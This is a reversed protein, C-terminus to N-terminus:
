ARRAKGLFLVRLESLEALYTFDPDVTMLGGGLGIAQSAILTDPTSAAIGRAAADSALRAARRHDDEDALVVPFSDRIGRLVRREQRRDSIGSLVEQFVIGPLAVAEESDLLASVAEVVREEIEGRRRRRLVASVIGTDLLIV